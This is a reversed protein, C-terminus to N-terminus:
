QSGVGIKHYYALQNLYNDRIMTSTRKGSITQSSKCGRQLDNKVRITVLNRQQMQKATYNNLFKGINLVASPIDDQTRRSFDLADPLKIQQRNAAAHKRMALSIDEGTFTKREIYELMPQYYFSGAEQNYSYVRSHSRSWGKPDPVGLDTYRVVM